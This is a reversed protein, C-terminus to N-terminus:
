PTTTTTPAATTPTADGGEAELLVAARDLLERAEDNKQEYEALGGDSGLSGEADDMLEIAQTILEPATADDSPPPTGETPATTTTSGTEAPTTTDTPEGTPPPPIEGTVEPADVKRDAVANDIGEVVTDGLYASGKWVVVVQNLSKSADKGKGVVYLPRIYFISDGVPILSMAGFEVNSGSQNLLTVKQSIRADNNIAVQARTPNAVEAGERREGDAQVTSMTYATLEGFREPDSDGVVYAALDARTAEETGPTLPRSRVFGPEGDRDLMLQNPPIPPPRQNTLEAVDSGPDVAVVWNESGDYFTEPDEVHYRGYMRTQVRLLEEPYQLHSRLDDPLEDFPTFLQPLARQWADIVPDEGLAAGDAFEGDIRYMKVSGDYGDITAVVAARVSNFRRSRLDSGEPLDDTPSFQAYPYTSVTTYGMQLYKVRGESVVPLAESSWSVFPALASLRENPDRRMLLRSNEDVSSSILPDIAGFRLSTEIQRWVSGLAIGTSGDFREGDERSTGAIAYWEALGRGFYVQSKDLKFDDTTRVPLDEILYDPSGDGAVRDAAALAVGEGATYVLHQQEWSQGPLDPRSLNRVSLVAPQAAGDIEYRDLFVEGMAFQPKKAQQAQFTDGILDPDLVPVLDAIPQAEEVEADSVMETYDFDETKLTDLGYAAKTAQQNREIFAIERAAKQPDVQFRQVFAPLAGAGLVSVALWLTLAVFPLGWGRRWVNYVLLGGCFLSVLTLLLTAPLQANVATYGAGDFVRGEAFTLSPRRVFYYEAAKVLALTALLVSLHAKVAPTGFGAKKTGPPRLSGNLYYVGGTALAITIVAAFLWSLVYELFPLRFFYFGLDIGFQPDKVGVTSGNLFLLWPEWAQIAPLGIALALVLAVVVRVIRHRSGILEHYRLIFEDAGMLEQRRSVRDAVTLSSLCALFFVLSFVSGLLVKAGTTALWTDAQNLSDYWLYELHVEAAIRLLILLGVIGGVVAVLAKRSGVSPARRGRSPPRPIDRPMRM